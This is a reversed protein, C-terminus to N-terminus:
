ANQEKRRKGFCCSSHWRVPKWQRHSSLIIEQKYCTIMWMIFLRLISWEELVYIGCAVLQELQMTYGTLAKTCIYSDCILTITIFLCLINMNQSLAKFLQWICDSSRMVQIKVVYSNFHRWLPFPRHYESNRNSTYCLKCESNPYNPYHYFRKTLYYDKTLLIM